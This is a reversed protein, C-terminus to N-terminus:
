REAAATFLCIHTWRYIWREPDIPQIVSETANTLSPLTGELTLMPRYSAKHARYEWYSSRFQHRSMLAMLSQDRALEIVEPLTLTKKDAEAQAFSSLQIVIALLFAIISKRYM